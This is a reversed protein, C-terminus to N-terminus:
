EMSGWCLAWAFYMRLPSVISKSFWINLCLIYLSYMCINFYKSQVHRYNRLVYTMEINFDFLLILNQDSFFMFCYFSIRIFFFGNVSKEKFFYKSKYHSYLFSCFQIYYISVCWIVSIVWVKSHFAIIM